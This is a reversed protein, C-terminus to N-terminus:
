RGRLEISGTLSFIRLTVMNHHSRQYSTCINLTTSFGQLLCQDRFIGSSFIESSHRSNLWRNIDTRHGTSKIEVLVSIVTQALWCPSYGLIPSITHLLKKWMDPFYCCFPTSKPAVQSVPQFAAVVQIPYLKIFQCSRFAVVQCICSWAIHCAAVESSVVQIETVLHAKAESRRLRWVTQSHTAHRHIKNDSFRCACIRLLYLHRKGSPCITVFICTYFHIIWDSCVPDPATSSVTHKRLGEADGNLSRTSNTLCFHQFVRCM